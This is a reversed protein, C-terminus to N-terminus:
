YVLFDKLLSSRSPHRLRRLAVAEIKRISESGLNFYKGIESLTLNKGDKLGFRLSIVKGQRPSLTGLVYDMIDKLCNIDVCALSDEELQIISTDEFSDWDKMYGVHEIDSFGYVVKDILENDSDKLSNSSSSICCDSSNLMDCFRFPIVLGYNDRLISSIKARVKIYIVKAVAYDTNINITSIINLLELYGEQRLDEISFDHLNTSQSLKQVCSDVTDKYRFFVKDRSEINKNEQWDRICEKVNIDNKRRM